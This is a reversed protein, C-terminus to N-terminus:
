SLSARAAPYCARPRFFISGPNRSTSLLSESMCADLRDGSHSQRSGPASCVPLLSSTAHLRARWFSINESSLSVSFDNCYLATLVILICPYLLSPSLFCSIDSTLKRWAFFKRFTMGPLPFVFNLQLTTFPGTTSPSPYTRRAPIYPSSSLMSFPTQRPM